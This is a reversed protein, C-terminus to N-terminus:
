ITEGLRRDREAMRAVWLDAAERWNPLCDWGRVANYADFLIAQEGSNDLGHEDNFYKAIESRTPPVRVGTTTTTTTKYQIPNTNSENQIVPVNEQMQNCNIDDSIMRNCLNDGPGPYKSKKARIQQHANWSPLSLFPKGNQSYVCVLGVSALKKIAKEVNALTICDKLPFLRNKIVATRGDFRGFDDCNVILRYFLVEEFWSLSDIRSSTCISEKLIRNPM